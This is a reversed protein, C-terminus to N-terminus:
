FSRRQFRWLGLGLAVAGFIATSWVPMWSEIPQNLIMHRIIVSVDSTKPLVYYFFRVVVRSWESSLLREITAKQALIPTIIMIAFVAMIAVASSDWLVGVLVLVALLVAFIFITCLSSILFGVGWVNTKVGFIIWSGAVLYVINAAVVLVNGLYRGLLLHTRSVPKSLLLEIRGPEFVAAVLGASAFVSLAMGAFYLVMAIVSQTQQVLGEVDSSTRNSGFITVTAIAGQVVDIRMIFMLFLLLASCCGFFGWFIRRAFAERFTDRVLAATTNATKNM